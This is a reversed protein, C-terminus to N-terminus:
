TERIFGAQQRLMGCELWLATASAQRWRDVGCVRSQCILIPKVEDLAVIEGDAGFEGPLAELAEAVAPFRDNLQKRIERFSRPRALRLSTVAECHMPEVFKPAVVSGRKRVPGAANAATIRKLCRDSTASTDDAKGSLAFGTGAKSLLQPIERLPTRIHGIKGSRGVAASIHHYRYQPCVDNM